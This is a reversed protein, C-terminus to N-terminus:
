TAVPYACGGPVLTGAIPATVEVAKIPFDSNDVHWARRMRPGIVIYEGVTDHKDFEVVPVPTGLALRGRITCGDCCDSFIPTGAPSDCIDCLSVIEVIPPYGLGNCDPCFIMHTANGNPGAFRTKFGGCGECEIPGALWTILPSHDEPCLGFWLPEEDPGPAHGHHTPFFLEGDHCDNRECQQYSFMKQAVDATTVYQQTMRPM